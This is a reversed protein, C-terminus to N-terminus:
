IRSSDQTSGYLLAPSSGVNRMGGGYQGSPQQAAAAALYDHSLSPGLPQVPQQQVVSPLSPAQQRKVVSGAGCNPPGSLFLLLRM